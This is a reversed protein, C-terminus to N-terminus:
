IGLWPKEKSYLNKANYGNVIFSGTSIIMPMVYKCDPCILFAPIIDSQKFIKEIIKKCKCCQYEHIM